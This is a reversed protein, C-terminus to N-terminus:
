LTKEENSTLPQTVAGWKAPNKQKFLIPKSPWLDDHAQVMYHGTPWEGMYSCPFIGTSGAEIVDFTSGDKPCYMAPRWGLEELRQYASHLTKIAAEETPMDAARKDEAAKCAALIEHAEGEYLPQHTGDNMTKHGVIKETM